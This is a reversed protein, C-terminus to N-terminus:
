LAPRGGGGRGLHPENAARPAVFRQPYWSGGPAAPAICRLGDVGLREALAEMSSPDHGRGHVLVLVIEAAAAM